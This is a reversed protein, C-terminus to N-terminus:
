GPASSPAYDPRWGTIMLLTNIAEARTAHALPRSPDERSVVIGGGREAIWHVGDRLSWTSIATGIEVGLYTVEYWVGGCGPDHRTAGDRYMMPGHKRERGRPQYDPINSRDVPGLRRYVNV